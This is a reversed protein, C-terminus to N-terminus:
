QAELTRLLGRAKARTEALERPAESDAVIGAGARFIVQDDYVQFSRILINFDLSGDHNIYGMSGTYAERPSPELERIIQMTRIKPCGTITGGPFIARLIDFVQVGAKLDGAITSEIHHVYQYRTVDMLAEVRVSGPVCVRGLDNRELDVLMVHEAREKPNAALRARLSDDEVPTVGRPHTGAIPRTSVRGNSDVKVLREPSSSVVAYEDMQLLASFPAPNIKMLSSFLAAPDVPEAFQVRWGRSLNVQFVDGARIYEQITAVGRLFQDPAEEDLSRMAPLTLSSFHADRIDQLVADCLHIFAEEVMLLCRGGPQQLLAIPIRALWALPLKDTAPTIGVTSELLGGLEYAFFVLWGGTFPLSGPHKANAGTKSIRLQMAPHRILTALGDALFIRDIQQPFGFLIDWGHDTGTTRLLGPYRDPQAAQLAALDIQGPLELIRLATM